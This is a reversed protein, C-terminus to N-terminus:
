YKAQDFGSETTLSLKGEYDSSNALDRDLIIRNCLDKM